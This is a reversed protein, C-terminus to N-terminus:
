RPDPADVHAWTEGRLAAYLTARHVGAERALLAVPEGKTRRRRADRVGRESLKSSPHDDGRLYLGTRRAHELNSRRSAWELNSVHNNRKDGDKHNVEPLGDPNPIFAEAVLRHVLRNHYQGDRYLQLREYGNGSNLRMRAMERPPVRRQVDGRTRATREESYIRGDRSVSYLGEFGVVQRIDEQMVPGSTHSDLGMGFRHWMEMSRSSVINVCTLGCTRAACETTVVAPASGYPEEIRASDERGHVTVIRVREAVGVEALAAVGGAKGM